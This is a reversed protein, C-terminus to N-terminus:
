IGKSIIRRRRRPRVPKGTESMASKQIYINSTKNEKALMELDPNLIELAATAYNRIDFPENRSGSRVIWEVKPRGKVFKIKRSESTLGDFYYEDYGKEKNVPFHCYGPKGEFDIKLRTIINQKGQDVGITFLAANHRNNRPANGSIFPVGAGGRGKIAFIRRNERPGTFKYVEDTYHGGSDICTSAIYIKQGNEYEFGKKLYNDLQEWVANQSPDGYFTQYEIGWSEKGLGWGVVEIELRNDQTDVGATLVLVKDPVEAYYRERRKMIEDADTESPEEWSEGLSTNVWVKLQEPSEKAKLFESIIDKWKKWPSALENLHFGRVKSEERAMWTGNNSKWEVESSREGCHECEMTIDEFRIKDWKLPQFAACVPCPLHWEEKTSNEYELEIRSLGKITPTSVFVKKRNWFNNTRKEALAIPDGETGASEPFRDVEDALMIRVPRSSLSSPSNAGVLSIQGGPFDKRLLTNSSNRSKAQAIKDRIVTTDRFMPALRDKSFDEALGLTPMMFIMPSPDYDIYYGMINLLLETKGVQASSMIVVKETDADNIADMIEKQYPARDTRWKGHEASAEPSLIRYRDAWESVKLKPPPKLITSISKFLNYERRM